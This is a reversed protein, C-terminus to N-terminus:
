VPGCLQQYSKICGFSNVSISGPFATWLYLHTSMVWFTHKAVRMKTYGQIDFHCLVVMHLSDYFPMIRVLLRLPLSSCRWFGAAKNYVLVNGFAEYWDSGVLSPYSVKSSLCTM